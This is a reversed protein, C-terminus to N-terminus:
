VTESKEAFIVTEDRFGYFDPQKEQYKIPKAIFGAQELRECLGNVSYYRVHDEQGFHIRRDAGTKISENEYIEGEKFPTQILVKGGPKLIRFLESIAKRDDKIHELVHYCVILDYVNDPEDIEVINLRKDAIFEGAYDTAVYYIQRNKKLKRYLCRQPSFDLVKISQNFFIDQLITKLRRTRSLSGCNPCMLENESIVVFKRLKKDCVTCQFKRGSYFMAYMKRLIVENKVLFNKSIHKNVIRKIRSYM